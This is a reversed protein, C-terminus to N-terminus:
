AQDMFEQLLVIAHFASFHLVEARSNKQGYNLWKMAHTVTPDQSYHPFKLIACVCAHNHFLFFKRPPPSARLGGVNVHKTSAHSVVKGGLAFFGAHFRPQHM